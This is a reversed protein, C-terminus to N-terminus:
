LLAHVDDAFLTRRCFVELKCPARGLLALTGAAFRTCLLLAAHAAAAAAAAAAGAIGEAAQDGALHALLLKALFPNAKRVLDADTAETNEQQAEALRGSARCVAAPASCLLAHMHPLGCCPLLRPPPVAGAVSGILSAPLLRHDHLACPAHM